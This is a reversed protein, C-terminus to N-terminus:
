VGFYISKIPAAHPERVIIEWGQVSIHGIYQIHTVLNNDIELTQM